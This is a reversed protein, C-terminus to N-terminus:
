IAQWKQNDGDHCSWLQVRSSPVDVDLCLGSAVGRITGDSRFAWRQHDGGDCDHIGVATGDATGSETAGLCKLGDYVTIQGTSTRTWQQASTGNCSYVWLQGVDDRRGEPVDLCLQTAVSRLASAAVPDTGLTM